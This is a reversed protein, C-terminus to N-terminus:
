RDQGPGPAVTTRTRKLVEGAENVTLRVRTSGYRFTIRHCGADEEQGKESLSTVRGDRMLRHVDEPALGLLPGLDAADIQFGNETPELRM